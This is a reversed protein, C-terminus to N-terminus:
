PLKQSIYDRELAEVFKDWFKGTLRVMADKAPREPVKWRQKFRMDLRTRSDGLNNLEYDATEDNEECYHQSHWRRPPQLDVIDVDVRDRDSADTYLQAYIVQKRTRRLIRRQITAGSIKPDEESFDTCWQYVYSLPARFTKSVRYTDDMPM